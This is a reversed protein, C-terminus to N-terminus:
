KETYDAFRHGLYDATLFVTDIRNDEGFFDVAIGWRTHGSDGKFLALFQYM